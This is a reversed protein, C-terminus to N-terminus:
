KLLEFVLYNKYKEQTLTFGLKELLLQTPYNSPLTFATIRNLGIQTFGYPLITKLAETMFGQRHFESKLVFGVEGTQNEFGRYYGCTGILKENYILAWSIGTQAEFGDRIEVIKEVVQQPSLQKDPFNAIEHFEDADSSKIERLLLRQSSLVPFQKDM